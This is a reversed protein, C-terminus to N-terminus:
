LNRLRTYIKGISTVLRDKRWGRCESPAGGARLGQGLGLRLASCAMVGPIIVGRLPVVVLSPSVQIPHSFLPDQLIRYTGAICTIENVESLLPLDFAPVTLYSQISQSFERLYKDNQMLPKQHYRLNTYIGARNGV